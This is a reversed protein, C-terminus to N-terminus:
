KQGDDDGDIEIVLVQNKKLLYMHSLDRSRCLHRNWTLESPIREAQSPEFYYKMSHICSPLSLEERVLSSTRQKVYYIDWIQTWYVIPCQPRTGSRQQGFKDM